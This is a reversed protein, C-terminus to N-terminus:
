ELVDGKAYAEVEVQPLTNVNKFSWGRRKFYAYAVPRLQGNQVYYVTGDKDGMILAGNIPPYPIGEQWERIEGSSFFYDPTIHRTKAVFSSISHLAGEKFLYLQGTDSNALWTIDKPTAFAGIPLGSLEDESLEVVNKFSWGRNKFLEYSIPKKLNNESLYVTESGPQKILTGDKPAVFGQKTYTAIEADPILEIDKSTLGRQKFTFGSFTKLLGNEVLFVAPETYGRIISGDKPTLLSGSQFLSSEAATITVANASNLGRQSIVFASAPHKINKEFVYIVNDGEVKIVTGDAPGYVTDTPYSSYETPSIVMKNGLALGRSLAVFNPVLQKTGNQIIYTEPSNALAVLTGNPYRFWENFFRWFNYNGNFVHPTYRYLAATARNFIQVVSSAPVGEFGGLTNEIIVTDGVRATRKSGMNGNVMGISDIQPGRGGETNYSKMLSKAAGLYRNGQTDFNGFIQYYFGPFLNGCGGSDPCDFGMAKDLTKQLKEQSYGAAGTILSQEKQLKVLIVQPNLGSQLSADWILEAATRLRGLNPRPDELGEKLIAIAPEKLMILFNADTRALISGKVELFKQIGEAGGFTQTDAFVSDEILKGSNFLPDIGQAGVSIPFIFILATVVTLKKIINKNM